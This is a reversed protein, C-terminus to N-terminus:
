LISLIYSGVILAHTHFCNRRKDNSTPENMSGHISIDVTDRVHLWSISICFAALDPVSGGVLHALAIHGARAEIRWRRHSRCFTRTWCSLKPRAARAEMSSATIM